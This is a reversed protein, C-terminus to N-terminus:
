MKGHLPINSKLLYWVPFLPTYTFPYSNLVHRCAQDFWYHYLLIGRSSTYSSIIGHCGQVWCVESQYYPLAHLNGLSIMPCLINFHTTCCIFFLPSYYKDSQPVRLGQWASITITNTEIPMIVFAFLGGCCIISVICVGKMIQQWILFHLLNQM